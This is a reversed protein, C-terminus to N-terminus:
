QRPEPGWYDPGGGRWDILPSVVAETDEMGLGARNLFEVLDPLGSALGFDEGRVTVRRGSDGLPPHVIVPMHGSM